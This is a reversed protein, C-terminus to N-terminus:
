QIKSLKKKLSALRQHPIRSRFGLDSCLYVGEQYNELRVGPHLQVLCQSNIRFFPSYALLKAVKDISYTCVMFQGGRFVILCGEKDGEVRAIEAVNVIRVKGKEPLFIQELNIQKRITRNYLKQIGYEGRSFLIRAVSERIAEPKLPKLLQTSIEFRIVRFSSLVDKSFVIKEYNLDKTAEFVQWSWEDEMEIDLMVLNPQHYKIMEIGDNVSYAKGVLEFQPIGDLLNEGPIARLASSQVIVAKIM